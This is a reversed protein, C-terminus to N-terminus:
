SQGLSKVRHMGPCQAASPPVPCDPRNTLASLRTENDAIQAMFRRERGKREELKM